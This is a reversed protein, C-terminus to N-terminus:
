FTRPRSFGVRRFLGRAASYEWTMGRPTQRDVGTERHLTPGAGPM